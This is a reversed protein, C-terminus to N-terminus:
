GMVERQDSATFRLYQQRLVVNSQDSNALRAFFSTSGGTVYSQVAVHALLGRVQQMRADARAM